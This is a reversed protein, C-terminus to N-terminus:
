EGVGSDLYLLPIPHYFILKTYINMFLLFEDLKAKFSDQLVYM